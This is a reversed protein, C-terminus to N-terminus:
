RSFTKTKRVCVCFKKRGTRQTRLSAPMNLHGKSEWHCYSKEEVKLHLDKIKKSHPSFQWCQGCRLGLIDAARAIDMLSAGRVERPGGPRAPRTQSIVTLLKVGVRYVSNHGNKELKSRSLPARTQTPYHSKTCVIAIKRRM